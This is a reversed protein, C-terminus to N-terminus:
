AKFWNTLFNQPPTVDEMIEKTRRVREQVVAKEAAWRGEPEKAGGWFSFIGTKNVTGSEEKAAEAMALRSVMTHWNELGTSLCERCLKKVAKSGSGLGASRLQEEALDVGDRTWSLGDDKSSTAYLIEGIYVQLSAEQCREEVSRWPPQTGDPRPAPYAPPLFLNIIKQYVPVNLPRSRIEPPREDSLGRRAKLLSIYMALSGSIDGGRAKSNAISTLAELINLSPSGTGEKLVLTKTHYPLADASLGKSAEGLALDQLSRAVEPQGKYEMFSAYELAAELRQRPTFGQTALIKMYWRHASPFANICNEELPAHAAGPPIPDPNPNSPGIMFRAPSVMNRTTDLVWGDVHEAAKAATMLAEFYGRRWEESKATIDYPVFEIPDELEPDTKDSLPVLGAGDKKPDSLRMLANRVRGLSGAWQINGDKPDELEKSDRLFKRTIYTWEHPTPHLRELYEEQVFFFIVLGAGLM